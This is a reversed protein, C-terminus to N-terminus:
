RWDDPNAAAAKFMAQQVAPAYYEKPNDRRLKDFYAKSGPEPGSVNPPVSTHTGQTPNPTPSTAKGDIRMLAKFATASQRAQEGLYEPTVGLEQARKQIAERAKAADGGHAELVAQQSKEFNDQAAKAAERESLSQEILKTIDPEDVQEQPKPTQNHGTGKDQAKLLGDLKEELGSYKTLDERLQQQEKQLQEIFKDSELKGRALDEVTKFKKGEGVLDALPDQQPQEPATPAAPNPDHDFLKPDDM